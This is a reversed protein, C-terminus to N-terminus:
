RRSKRRTPSTCSVPRRSWSAPRSSARRCSRRWRAPSSTPAKSSRRSAPTTRRHDRRRLRVVLGSPAGGGRKAGERLERLRRRRVGGQRHRRRALGGRRRDRDPQRAQRQGQAPRREPQPRAALGEQALLVPQHRAPGARPEHRPLRRLAAPDGGRQAAAHVPGGPHPDGVILILIALVFLGWRPGGYVLSQALMLGGVVLLALAVLLALFGNATGIPAEVHAPGQTKMRPDM